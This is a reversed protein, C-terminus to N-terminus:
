AAFSIMLLLFCICIYNLSHAPDWRRCTSTTPKPQGHLEPQITLFGRPFLNYFRRELNCFTASDLCIAPSSNFAKTDFQSPLAQNAQSGLINAIATGKSVQWPSSSIPISRELLFFHMAILLFLSQLKGQQTITKNQDRNELNEGGNQLTLTHKQAM